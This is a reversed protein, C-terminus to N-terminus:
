KELIVLLLCAVLTWVLKLRMVIGLNSGCTVNLPCFVTCNRYSGWNETSVLGNLSSVM